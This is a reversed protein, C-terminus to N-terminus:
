NKSSKMYKPYYGKILHIAPMSKRGDTLQTKMGTITEKPTCFDKLKTYYWKDIRARIEQAIPIRNFFNNGIDL